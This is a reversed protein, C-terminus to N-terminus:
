FFSLSSTQYISCMYIRSNAVALILVFELRSLTVAIQMLITILFNGLFYKRPLNLWYFSAVCEGKLTRKCTPGLPNGLFCVRWRNWIKWTCTPGTKASLHKGLFNKEIVITTQSSALKRLFVRLFLGIKKCHNFSLIM